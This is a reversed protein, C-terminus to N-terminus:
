YGGYSYTGWARLLAHISGGFRRKVQRNLFTNHSAHSDIGAYGDSTQGFGSGEIKRIVYTAEEVSLSNILDDLGTRKHYSKGNRHGPIGLLLNIAKRANPSNKMALLGNSDFYPLGNTNQNKSETVEEKQAVEQKNSSTKVNEKTKKAKEEAIKKSEDQKAKERKAKEEALKKAEEKEKEILTEEETNQPVIRKCFVKELNSVKELTIAKNEVIIVSDSGNFLGVKLSNDKEYFVLDGRRLHEKKIEIGNKEKMQSIDNELKIGVNLYSDYVFNNETDKNVSYLANIIVKNIKTLNDNIASIDNVVITENQINTTETALSTASTLILAGVLMKDTIM